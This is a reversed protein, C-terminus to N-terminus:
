RARAHLARREVRGAPPDGASAVEGIVAEFPPFPAPAAAGHDMALFLDTLAPDFHRGRQAAIEALAEEVSWARKYPRESTLADFVDCLAAIRGALPIAEGALGTPYGTGDWKEHHTRAIAEATRILPVKSGALIDGGVTAHTQMTAREEDDLRGPKHLIADPVGIKGVDHMVSARRLEEAEEPPMGTAVALRHCLASMREIHAGTEGDRSEVAQGLREVIELQTEFLEHTRRQVEADLLENMQAIRRRERSEGLHSAVVTCLAGVGLALLAPAVTLVVGAAFALQAVGAFLLAVVPLLVMATLVSFRAAALPVVIGLLVVALLDVWPPASRLPFDHLVTWIANAQIEPGAMPSGSGTTSTAHVDQITASTAGIVVIRGRLVDPDVKGALLRSFSVTPVTGPGGRFDIWAGGPEFGTRDIPRGRREATAVAVSDLRGIRPLVRRIVGNREDPLNAAAARSDIAALAEDGGLVNTAGREDSESTALVVGGFAGIGDYLALDERATSPETFQVDIVVDRVGAAELRRLAQAYRSRPLPWQERLESFTVDDIAVVAIEAPPEAPRVAFRLDVADDELAALLGSGYAALGTGVGVVAAVLLVLWRRRM